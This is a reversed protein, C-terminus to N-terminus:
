SAPLLLEQGARIDTSTLNNVAMLAEVTTGFRRALSYLTDGAVVTYTRPSATPTPAPVAPAPTFVPAPTPPPVATAPHLARQLGDAAELGGPKVQLAAKFAAIAGTTDGALLLRYGYNVYATYMKDALGAYAPDLAAIQALLDLVQPWDGANWADALARELPRLDLARLTPPPAGPPALSQLPAYPSTHLIIDAALECTGKGKGSRISLNTLVYGDLSSERIHAVFCALRLFSGTAQLRYQLMNSASGPAAEAGKQGQLSAIQVACEAAYGYLRSVAEAAQAESLFASAAVERQGEAAKLRQRWVEPSQEDAAQAEVVARKAADIELTLRRWARAEPLIALGAFLFLGAVIVTVVVMALIPAVQERGPLRSRLAVLVSM